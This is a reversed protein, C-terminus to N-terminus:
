GVLPAICHLGGVSGVPKGDYIALWWDPNYVSQLTIVGPRHVHVSFQAIYSLYISPINVEYGTAEVFVCVCM